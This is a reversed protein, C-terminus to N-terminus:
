PSMQLLGLAKAAIRAREYLAAPDTIDGADSYWPNSAHRMIEDLRDSRDALAALALAGAYPCPVSAGYPHPRGTPTALAFDLATSWAGTFGHALAVHHREIDDAVIAAAEDAATDSTVRYANARSPILGYSTGNLVVGAQFSPKRRVSLAELLRALAGGQILIGSYADFGQPDIDCRVLTVYIQGSAGDRWSLKVRDKSLSARAEPFRLAALKPRLATFFAARHSRSDM